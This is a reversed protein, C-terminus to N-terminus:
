ADVARAWPVRQVDANIRRLRPDIGVSPHFGAGGGIKSRSVHNTEVMALLRVSKIADSLTLKVSGVSDAGVAIGVKGFSQDNPLHNLARLVVPAKVEDVPRRRARRDAAPQRRIRDFLATCLDTDVNGTCASSSGARLLGAPEAYHAVSADSGKDLFKHQFRQIDFLGDSERWAVVQLEVNGGVIDIRKRSKSM